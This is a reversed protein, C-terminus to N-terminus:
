AGSARDEGGGEAAHRLLADGFGRLREAADADPEEHRALTDKIARYTATELGCRHCDELHAAVRCATVEDTEGDLYAQLVRGVRICNMRREAPDRRRLWATM